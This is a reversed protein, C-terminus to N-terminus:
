LCRPAVLCVSLQASPILGCGVSCVFRCPLTLAYHYEAIIRKLLVQALALCLPKPIRCYLLVLGYMGVSMVACVDEQTSVNGKLEVLRNHMERRTSEAAAAACQLNGIRNLLRAVVDRQEGEGMMEQLAEFEGELHALRSAQAGAEARATSLAQETTAFRAELDM